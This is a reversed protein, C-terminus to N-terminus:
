RSDVVCSVPVFHCGHHCSGSVGCLKWKVQASCAAKSTSSKCMEQVLRKLEGLGEMTHLVGALPTHFVATSPFADLREVQNM